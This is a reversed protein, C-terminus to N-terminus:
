RITTSDDVDDKMMKKLDFSVLNDLDSELYDKAFSRIIDIPNQEM